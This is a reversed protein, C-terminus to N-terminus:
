LLNARYDNQTTFKAAFLIKLIEVKLCWVREAFFALM